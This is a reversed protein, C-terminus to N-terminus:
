RAASGVPCAYEAPAAACDARAAAALGACDARPAATPGSRDARAAAAAPGARGAMPQWGM